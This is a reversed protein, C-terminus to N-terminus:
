LFALSAAEQLQIMTKRAVARGVGVPVGNGIQRALQEPTGEFLFTDPLGQLRAGERFSIPRNECPHLFRGRSPNLFGTRLTNSVGAIPLRGWIDIIKGKTKFWSPPVLDPAVDALDRIDGGAPILEMRRLAQESQTRAYHQISFDPYAPLGRFADRVLFAKRRKIVSLDPLGVLSCITFSRLRNQAVGFDKANLIWAQVDFGIRKFRRAMRKWADSDLFAPVNEVIVMKAGTAEAWKPIVLALYNRPDGESRSGISSFGQCPPGAIIVDCGGEPKFSSLDCVKVLGPLNRAHTAAAVPDFEYAGVLRFGEKHFSYGLLGAGSFLDIVRPRHTTMPKMQTVEGSNM